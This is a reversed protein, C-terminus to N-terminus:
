PAGAAAGTARRVLGELGAADLGAAPRDDAIRGDLLVVVRDALRAGAALDHTALVCTRRGDRAGELLRHLRATADRDLGTFPEDLLLLDPRHLLARAIALRQQMGRSYTGVPDHGREGLAASRLGEAAAAPADPLGYLRAYFLLNEFGTLHDYLLTHHSLLGLRRRLGAADGSAPDIGLVRLSGSTPRSLTALLRLLTSKGAGNPGLLLVFEGAPIHLDVGDLAALPGYRKTLARGLVAPPRGAGAAREAPAGGGGGTV